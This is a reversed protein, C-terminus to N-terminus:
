SETNNQNNESSDKSVGTNSDSQDNASNSTEKVPMETIECFGMGVTANAGVQFPVGDLAKKMILKVVDTEVYLEAFWFTSQRPILEEYWLNGKGQLNNRAVVPLNECIEIFVSDKLLAFENKEGFWDELESDWLSHLESDAFEQKNQWDEIRVVNYDGPFLLFDNGEKFTVKKLLELASKLKPTILKFTQLSEYFHEIIAPCTARFFPRVNSRVPLTLLQASFFKSNGQSTGEGFIEEIECDVNNDRCYDRLSGKMGTAHIVPFGTVPDRQVLKDVIGFSMDGSGPHLNTLAKLKFIKRNM